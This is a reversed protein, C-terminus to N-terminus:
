LIIEKFLPAKKDKESLIFECKPWDINIEPDLCNITVEYEKAYYNDVKYQVVVCDTLTLFAHGFGRPIYLQKFNDESLTVMVVQKFTKSKKRLDIAVDLIRGSTCRVLKTQAMPPKQFHIGRMTGKQLSFSQNDQIFGHNFLLKKHYTEIFYGREDRHLVPTIVFVGEINTKEVKM